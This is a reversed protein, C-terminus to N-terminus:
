HWVLLNCRVQAVKTSSSVYVGSISLIWDSSAVCLVVFGSLSSVYCLCLLVFYTLDSPVLSASPSELCVLGHQTPGLPRRGVVVRAWGVVACGGTLVDRQAPLPQWFPVGGPGEGGGGGAVACPNGGWGGGGVGVQSIKESRQFLNGFLRVVLGRDGWKAVACPNGGAAGGGWVCAVLVWRRSRKV